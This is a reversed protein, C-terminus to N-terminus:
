PAPYAPRCGLNGGRLQRVFWRSSSRCDRADLGWYGGRIVREGAGSRAVPDPGVAEPKRYFGEDYVDECWEQLNGHMDYLGFGNAAMKGVPHTFGGSNGRHWGMEDLKGTGAIPTAAGGRCAYEWEAETPLRFGTEANFGLVDDWSVVEMPQDDSAMFDSPNSRMAAKKWQAQTLEYKAIMFPSLTVEHVPVEKGENAEPDYNQGKPDTKQAGMWFTGGPLRVFVIGTQRHRYERLGFQNVCLPEFRCWFVLHPWGLYVAAAITAIGLVTMVMAVRRGKTKM